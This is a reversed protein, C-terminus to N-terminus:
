IENSIIDADDGEGGPAGDAGFSTIVFSGDPEVVYEYENDWPDLPISRMIPEGNEDDELLEELSDPYRHNEMRFTTLSQEFHKMQMTVAGKQGKILASFVNSGVLGVLLGIILVVVLIEILTFGANRRPHSKRTKM